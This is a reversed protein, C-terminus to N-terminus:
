RDVSMHQYFIIGTCVFISILSLWFNIERGPWFYYNVIEIGLANIIESGWFGFVIGAVLVPACFGLSILLVNLSPKKLFSFVIVMGPLLVACLLVLIALIYPDSQKFWGYLIALLGICSLCSIVRLQTGSAKNM